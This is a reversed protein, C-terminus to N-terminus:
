GAGMVKRWSMGIGKELQGWYREEAQALCKKTLPRTVLSNGTAAAEGTDCSLAVVTSMCTSAVM